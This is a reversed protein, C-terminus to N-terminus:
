VIGATAELSGAERPDEEEAESCWLHGVRRDPSCPRTRRLQVLRGVNVIGLASELVVNSWIGLLVNFTLLAVSSLLAIQRFRAARTQSYAILALLAGLWGLLTIM